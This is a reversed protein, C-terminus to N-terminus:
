VTSDKRQRRVGRPHCLGIAKGGDVVFLVGREADLGREALEAVLRTCVASNETSGEAVGLPVKVGDADVGLAGVLHARGDRITL